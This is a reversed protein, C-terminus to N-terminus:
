FVQSLTWSVYGTVFLGTIFFLLSGTVVLGLAEKIHRPQPPFTDDGIFPKETKKGHYVCPGGLRIGLAGAVAAESIGSNPSPNKQGDRVGIRLVRLPHKGMVAAAAALFFLSIRAPIYNLVDDLRASFRGFYSYKENKYGIMSDLTNVAKYGAICPASGIFAYLLPSIIGDVMNEAVTEVVARIIGEEPLTHTERGVIRSLKFRAGALDKKELLLYIEMAKKWLDKLSIGSYIIYIGALGSVVPYGSLSDVMGALATLLLVTGVSIGTITLGFLSGAVIRGGAIGRFPKELRTIMGGILRVPHYPYEPDGVLLDLIFAATMMLLLFYWPSSM